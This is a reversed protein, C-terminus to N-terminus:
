PSTVHRLTNEKHSIDLDNVKDNMNIYVHLHKQSRTQREVYMLYEHMLYWIIDTEKADETGSFVYKPSIPYYTDSHM